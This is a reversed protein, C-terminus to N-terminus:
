GLQAVFCGANKPVRFCGETDIIKQIESALLQLLPERHSGDAPLPEVHDILASAYYRLASDVDPFRFADNRVKLKAEPFVERVRDLHGLHFSSYVPPHTEYGLFTAVDDHLELMRRGSDAANTGIVIRGGPVLVRRMERLAAVPDPVHYLMHNCMIRDVSTDPFPLQTADGRALHVHLRRTRAQNAAERLMGPSLDVGVIRTRQQKLRPHQAGHGCGVDLLILDPRPELHGLVFDIYHSRNESYRAHAEHRIRLRDADGYQGALYTPNTFRDPM